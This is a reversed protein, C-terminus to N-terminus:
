ARARNFLLLAREMGGSDICIMAQERLAPKPHYAISLGAALMMPLDNAGDGVAITFRAGALRSEIEPLAPQDWHEIRYVLANKFM